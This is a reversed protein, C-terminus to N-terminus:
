RRDKRVAVYDYSATDEPDENENLDSAVRTIKYYDYDFVSENGQECDIPILDISSIVEDFVRDGIHPLEDIIDFYRWYHTNSWENCATYVKIKNM